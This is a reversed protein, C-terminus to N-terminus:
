KRQACREASVPMSFHMGNAPYRGYNASPQPAGLARRRIRCLKCKSSKLINRKAWDWLKHAKITNADLRWTCPRRYALYLWTHMSQRQLSATNYSTMSAINVNNYLKSDDDAFMKLSEPQSVIDVLDNIRLFFLLTPADDTDLRFFLRRCCHTKIQCSFRWGHCYIM